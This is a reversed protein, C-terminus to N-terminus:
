HLKALAYDALNGPKSTQPLVIGLLQQHHCLVTNRSRSSSSSSSSIAAAAGAVYKYVSVPTRATHLPSVRKSCLGRYKYLACLPVINNRDTFTPLPAVSKRVLAPTRATHLPSARKSCLGRYKYLACASLLVTHTIACARAGTVGHYDKCLLCRGYWSERRKSKRKRPGRTTTVGVGGVRGGRAIRKRVHTQSCPHKNSVKCSSRL